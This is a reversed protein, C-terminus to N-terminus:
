RTMLQRDHVKSLLILAALAGVGCMAMDKQTDWPDGQTGLFSDGASGTAASVAWELLEYCASLGLCMGLVIVFLWKGSRLPSTRILLERAIMAPVFGQIFHGLRDYHNRSLHFEDRLWNFLPVKAYTYHGGILLVIAHLAILTYVLPTFRFRRYTLILIPLGIMVPFTELVWTFRESPRIGSWIFVALVLILLFLEWRTAWTKM